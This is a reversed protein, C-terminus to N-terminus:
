RFQPPPPPQKHQQFACLHCNAITVISSAFAIPSPPSPSSSPPSLIAAAHRHHQRTTATAHDDGNCANAAPMSSSRLCLRSLMLEYVSAYTALVQSPPHMPCSTVTTTPDDGSCTDAASM